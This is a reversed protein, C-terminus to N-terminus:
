LVEGVGVGRLNPLWRFDGRVGDDVKKDLFEPGEDIRLKKKASHAAQQSWLMDAQFMLVRDVLKGIARGRGIVPGARKFWTGSGLPDSLCHWEDDVKAWQEMQWNGLRILHYYFSLHDGMWNLIWATHRNSVYSPVHLRIRDYGRKEQCEVHAGEGESEFVCFDAHFPSPGVVELQMDAEAESLKRKLYERVVVVASSAKDHQQDEDRDLCEVITVPGYYFYETRVRFHETGLGSWSYDGGHLTEVIDQQVRQPIRLTFEVVDICDPLQGAEHLISLAHESLTLDDSSALTSPSVSFSGVTDLDSLLTELTEAYQLPRIRYPPTLRMSFHFCGVGFTTIPKM